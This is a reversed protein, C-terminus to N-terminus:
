RKGRIAIAKKLLRKCEELTLGAENAHPELEVDPMALLSEPSPPKVRTGTKLVGMM